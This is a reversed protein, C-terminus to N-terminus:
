TVLKQLDKFADTGARDLWEFMVTEFDVIQAGCQRLRDLALEHSDEDRAAVADAVVFAGFGRDLLDLVTQGVSVHTETGAVVVQGCGFRRQAEVYPGLTSDRMCSFHTRGIITATHGADDVLRGATAGFAKPDHESITIPIDLRKAAKVLGTCTRTVRKPKRVHALTQDQMDVILLQSRHRELRM